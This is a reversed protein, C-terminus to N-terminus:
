VGFAIWYIDVITTNENKGEFRIINKDSMRGINFIININTDTGVHTAFAGISKKNM